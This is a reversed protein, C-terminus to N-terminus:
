FNFSIESRKFEDYNEDFEDRPEFFFNEREIETEVFLVDKLSLSLFLNKKGLKTPAVMRDILDGNEKIEKLYAFL